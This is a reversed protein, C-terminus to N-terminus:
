SGPTPIPSAQIFVPVERDIIQAPPTEIIDNPRNLGDILKGGIKYGIGLTAATKAADVIQQEPTAPLASQESTVSYGQEVQLQMHLMNCSNFQNDTTALAYCRDVLSIRNVQFKIHDSKRADNSSLVKQYSGCGSLALLGIILSISPISPISPIPKM